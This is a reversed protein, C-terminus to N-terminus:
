PRASVPIEAPGQQCDACNAVIEIQFHALYCTPSQVLWPGMVLLLKTSPMLRGLELDLLAANGIEDEFRCLFLERACRSGRCVDVRRHHM